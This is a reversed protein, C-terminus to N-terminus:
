FLLSFACQYCNNVAFYYSRIINYLILHQNNFPITNYRYGFVGMTCVLNDIGM